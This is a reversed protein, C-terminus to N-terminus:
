SDMWCDDIILNNYGLDALGLEVMKDATDKVLESSIDCHFKNWTNWGMQPHTALGDASFISM